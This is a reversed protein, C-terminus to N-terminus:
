IYKVYENISDLSGYKLNNLVKGARISVEEIQRKTSTKIRMVKEFEGIAFTASEKINILVEKLNFIEEKDLWFYSDIIRECEKVIDNYISQYGEKKDILKCVAKCDAM